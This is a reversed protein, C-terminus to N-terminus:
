RRDPLSYRGGHKSAGAGDVATQDTRTLRWLRM